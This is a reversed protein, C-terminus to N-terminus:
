LTFVFIPDDQEEVIAKDRHLLSQLLSQLSSQLLLHLLSLFVHTSEFHLKRRRGHQIVGKEGISVLYLNFDKTKKSTEIHRTTIM